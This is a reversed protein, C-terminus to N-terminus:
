RTREFVGGFLPPVAALRLVSAPVGRARLSRRLGAAHGPPFGRGVAVLLVSSSNTRAAAVVPWWSRRRFGLIKRILGSFDKTARVSIGAAAQARMQAPLAAYDGRRIRVARRLARYLCRYAPADVLIVADARAARVPISDLYNGEIIWEHEAALDRQRRLWEEPEPRSWDEGWHLDDLHRLPLGTRDALSRSLTTKGSGPSGLVLLRRRDQLLAKLADAPADAAFGSM